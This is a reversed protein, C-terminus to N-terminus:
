ESEELATKLNKKQNETLGPWKRALASALDLDSEGTVQLELTARTELAMKMFQNADAGLIEAWKVVKEPGPPNRLGNEVDSVYSPSWSLQRALERVTMRADIRAARAMNGFRPAM